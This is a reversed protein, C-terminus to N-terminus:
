SSAALFRISCANVGWQPPPIQGNWARAALQLGPDKEPCRDGHGPLRQVGGVQRLSQKARM